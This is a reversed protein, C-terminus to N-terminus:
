VEFTIYRNRYKTVDARNRANERERERREVREIERMIGDVRKENTEGMM